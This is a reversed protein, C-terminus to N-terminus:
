KIEGLQVLMRKIIKLPQLPRAEFNKVLFYALSFNNYNVFAINQNHASILCILKVPRSINRTWLNQQKVYWWLSEFCQTFHHIISDVKTNGLKFIDNIDNTSRELALIQFLTFIKLDASHVLFSQWTKLLCNTARITTGKSMSIYISYAVFCSTVLSWNLLQVDFSVWPYYKM